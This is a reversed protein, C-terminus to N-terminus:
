QIYLTGDKYATITAKDGTQYSKGSETVVDIERAMAGDSVPDACHVEKRETQFLYHM